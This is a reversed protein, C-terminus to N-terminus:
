VQDCKLQNRASQDIRYHLGEKCCFGKCRTGWHVRAMQCADRLWDRPVDYRRNAMTGLQNCACHTHHAHTPASQEVDREQPWRSRWPEQPMKSMVVLWLPTQKCLCKFPGRWSVRWTICYTTRKPVVKAWLGGPLFKVYSDWFPLINRKLFADSTFWFCNQSKYTCRYSTARLAYFNTIVDGLVWIPAAIYPMKYLCCKKDKSKWLLLTEGLSM